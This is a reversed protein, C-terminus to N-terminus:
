IKRFAALLLVMLRPSILYLISKLVLDRRILFTYKDSILDLFETLVVWRSPRRVKISEDMEDMHIMRLIFNTSPSSNDKDVLSLIAKHLFTAEAFDRKSSFYNRSNELHVRVFTSPLGYSCYGIMKNKIIASYFLFSDIYGVTLMAMSEKISLAFSKRISISSLNFNIGLRMKDFVEKVTSPKFLNIVPEIEPSKGNFKVPFEKGHFKIIQNRYFVIQSNFANKVEYLKRDAFIDDDELFSIIEGESKEIGIILKGALTQDDTLVLKCNFNLNPVEIPINSVIIAEFDKNSITQQNLSNLAYSYYDRRDFVPIVVSIM